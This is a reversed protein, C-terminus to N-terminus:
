FNVETIGFNFRVSCTSRPRSPTRTWAPSLLHHRRHGWEQSSTMRQGRWARCQRWVCLFYM